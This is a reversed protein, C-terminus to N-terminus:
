GSLVQPSLQRANAVRWHVAPGIKFLTVNIISHFPLPDLGIKHAAREVTKLIQIVGILLKGFLTMRHAGFRGGIQPNCPLYSKLRRHSQM